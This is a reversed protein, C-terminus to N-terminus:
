EACGLEANRSIQHDSALMRRFLENLSALQHTLYEIQKGQTKNVVELAEAKAKWKDRRSRLLDLDEACKLYGSRPQLLPTFNGHIIAM